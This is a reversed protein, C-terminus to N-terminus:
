NKKKIFIIATEERILEKLTKNIYKHVNLIKTGYRFTYADTNVSIPYYGHKKLFDFAFNEFTISSDYSVM